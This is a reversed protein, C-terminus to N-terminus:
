TLAAASHSIRGFDLPGIWTDSMAPRESFGPMTACRRLVSVSSSMVCRRRMGTVVGIAVRISMAGAEAAVLEFRRDVLGVLAVEDVRFGEPSGEIPQKM